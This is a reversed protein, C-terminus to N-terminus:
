DGSSPKTHCPKNATCPPRSSRTHASDPFPRSIGHCHHSTLVARYFVAIRSLWFFSNTWFARFARSCHGRFGNRHCRGRSSPPTDPQWPAHPSPSGDRDPRLAPYCPACSRVKQSICDKRKKEMRKKVAIFTQKSQRLSVKRWQNIM